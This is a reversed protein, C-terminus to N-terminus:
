AIFHMRVEGAHLFIAKTFIDTPIPNPLRLDKLSPVKAADPDFSRDIQSIFGLIVGSEKAFSQLMRMQDALPPKSRQQDLIQLYDIVALSGKPANELHQIIFEACIDDSTFIAPIDALAPKSLKRLREETEQETYELTFFYGKRGSSVADILLRLGLMTKGQGPRAGILLLDGNSLADLLSSASQDSSCRHTLLSWRQFGEGAAIIDQAKHLPIHDQKALHKARRKLEHIPASLRM